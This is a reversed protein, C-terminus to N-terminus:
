FIFKRLISFGVKAVAAQRSKVSRSKDPFSDTYRPIGDYFDDADQGSVGASEKLNREMRERIQPATTFDNPKSPHFNKGSKHNDFQEDTKAFVKDDNASRSCLGGMLESLRFWFEIRPYGSM